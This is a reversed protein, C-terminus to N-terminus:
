FLILEQKENDPLFCSKAANFVARTLHVENMGWSRVLQYENDLSSDTVTTDDTNISFNAKDQAFQIVPHKLCTATALDVSGTLMSSTPCTEFHISNRLCKQYLEPDQMVRYGHGIRQAFMQEVAVKVIESPGDEGAHVTRNIGLRKAEVFISKEFETYLEGGGLTTIAGEDGAIDIGVVGENKFERCLDLIEQSFQSLGNLCCLIARARV